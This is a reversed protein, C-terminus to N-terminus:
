ELWMQDVPTSTAKLLPIMRTSCIRFALSAYVISGECLTWQNTSNDWEARQSWNNLCVSRIGHDDKLEVMFLWKADQSRPSAVSRSCRSFRYGPVLCLQLTVFAFQADSYLKSQLHRSIIFSQRSFISLCGLDPTWLSFQLSMIVLNTFSHSTRTPGM